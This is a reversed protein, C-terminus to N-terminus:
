NKCDLLRYPYSPRYGVKGSRISHCWPQSNLSLDATSRHERCFLVHGHAYSPHRFYRDRQGLLNEQDKSKSLDWEQTSHISSNRLGRLSWGRNRGLNLVLPGCQAQAQLMLNRIPFNIAPAAFEPTGIQDISPQFDARIVHSLFLAISHPSAEVIGPFPPLINRCLSSVRLCLHLDSLGCM